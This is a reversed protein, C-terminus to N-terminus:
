PESYQKTNYSNFDQLLYKTGDSKLNQSASCCALITPSASTLATLRPTSRSGLRALPGPSHFLYSRGHRISSAKCTGCRCSMPSCRLYRPAIGLSRSRGFRLVRSSRLSYVGRREHGRLPSKAHIPLVSFPPSPSPWCVAPRAGQLRLSWQRLWPLRIHGKASALLGNTCRYPTWCMASFKLGFHKGNTIGSLGNRTREGQALCQGMGVPTCNPRRGSSLPFSSASSFMVCHPRTLLVTTGSHNGDNTQTPMGADNRCAFM